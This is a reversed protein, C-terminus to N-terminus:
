GGTKRVPGLIYLLSGLVGLLVLIAIVPEVQRVTLHIGAIEKELVYTGLGWVGTWLASGLINCITFSKWPMHLLGAGIGNLQRLGEFFRGLVVIGRGYRNFFGELRQLREEKVRLKYLLPRGGRAGILYGLSNGLIAASFSLLLVLTINVEGRAAAFAAAMLLTQGPAVLGFGEVLVAAFVALYGYRDLLPQVEHMADDLEAMISDRAAPKRDGQDLYTEATAAQNETLQSAATAAAPAEVQIQLLPVALASFLLLLFCM